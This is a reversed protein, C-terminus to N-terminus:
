RTSRGKLPHCDPVSLPGEAPFAILVCIGLLSYNISLACICEEERGRETMCVCVCVCVYVYVCVCGREFPNLSKYCILWVLVFIGYTM